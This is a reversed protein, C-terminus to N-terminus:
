ILFQQFTIRFVKFMTYQFVLILMIINLTDVDFVLYSFRKLFRKFRKIRSRKM